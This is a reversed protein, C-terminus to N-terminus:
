HAHTLSLSVSLCVHTYHPTTYHLQTTYHLTTDHLSTDHLTTYRLTTNHLTTYHLATCHLTTFHLTTTHTCRHAHAHTHTHTHAHTYTHTCRHTHAHTHTHTHLNFLVCIFSRLLLSFLSLLLPSLSLLSLTVSPERPCYLADRLNRPLVTCLFVCRWFAVMRATGLVYESLLFLHHAWYVTEYLTFSSTACYFAICLLCLRVVLLCM